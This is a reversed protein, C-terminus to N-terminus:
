RPENRDVEQKEGAAQFLLKLAGVAMGFSSTDGEAMNYVRRIADLANAIESTPDMIFKYGAKTTVMKGDEEVILGLKKALEEGEAMHPKLLVARSVVALFTTLVIGNNPPDISVFATTAETNITNNAQEM